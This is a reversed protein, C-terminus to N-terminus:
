RSELISNFLWKFTGHPQARFTIEPGFLLVRGLGVPAEVAAAAGELYQQGWAWGSRLPTASAYTALARVGRAAAEVGLRFTPSNDYFVDLDRAVGYSVTRTTDTAVRLVSGPVYFKDAGLDREAGAATREVLANTIPLGLYWGLTASTGVAIVTGGANAFERLSPVTRAVSVRGVRAQYEAPVAVSDQDFDRAQSERTPMAGSPLVIVDYRSALGGADLAKTYVLEYPFEYQELLWRTHGSPASGGYRDWLALRVPHLAKADPGPAATTGEASVGHTRALEKLMASTMPTAAIYFTGAPWRHGGSLLPAGLVHVAAKAKLARNVAIFADNTAHSVLFGTTGNSESVLGAPPTALEAITEFPGSVAELVRSFHVGMQYALTYGANDYPRKPPGGPYAFDNPHDQPEFMDLVYPRFAQAAQVVLSGAAYRTGSASFPATARQVEIGNHRLTNVFKVATLFDPQDAPIVYARADRRAPDRLVENFYRADVGRGFQFLADGAATVSGTTSARPETRAARDRAVLRKVQDVDSPTTTWSDRSGREISNRGMRWANFLFTERNRSAIDLVARNATISYEVS